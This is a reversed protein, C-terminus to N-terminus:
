ARCADARQDLLRDAYSLMVDRRPGVADALGAAVAALAEDIEAATPTDLLVPSTM